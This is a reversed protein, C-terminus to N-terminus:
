EPLEIWHTVRDYHTIFVKKDCYEYGSYYGVVFQVDNPNKYREVRLLVAKGSGPNELEANHWKTASDM